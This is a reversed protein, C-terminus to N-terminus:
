QAVVVGCSMMLRAPSSGVSLSQFGGTSVVVSYVWIFFSPNSGGVGCSFAGPEEFKIDLVASM